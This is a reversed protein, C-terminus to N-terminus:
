LLSGLSSLNQGHGLLGRMARERELDQAVVRLIRGARRTHLSILEFLGVAHRQEDGEVLEALLLIWRQLEVENAAGADAHAAPHHDVAPRAGVEARESFLDPRLDRQRVQWHELQDTVQRDVGALP